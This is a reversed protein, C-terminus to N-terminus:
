DAIELYGDGSCGDQGCNIASATVSGNADVALQSLAVSSHGAPASNGAANSQSGGGGGGGSGCACLLLTSLLFLKRM